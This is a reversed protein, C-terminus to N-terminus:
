GTLRDVIEESFESLGHINLGLEELIADRSTLWEAEDDLRHQACYIHTSLQLLGVIVRAPNTVADIEHHYRIAWQVFEPLAWQKSVLYGVVCHDTHLAADEIALDPWPAARSSRFIKCYDPFKQMLIPVGCDHFLGSMFAQDPQINIVSRQLTAVAAAIQAIENARDWFLEYASSNGALTQRIAIGKVINTVQPIGMISVASEVTDIRRSLGMAPSNAVKFISAAIGPDKKIVSAIAKIGVDPQRTLQDIETLVRPQPPITIGQGALDPASDQRVVAARNGTM